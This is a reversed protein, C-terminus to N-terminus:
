SHPFGEELISHQPCVAVCKRCLVCRNHDIYALHHELTIADYACAKVCKGCGICGVDCAKRTVAGKDRSVCSVYIRRSKRGKNRLEIIARPCAKVCAGCATCKDEVVEPLGTAPNIHIADFACAVVCDGCGLCGYVCGTEGGYLSAAIACNAVGDYTNTRRCHAFSGSCRVVAVRPDVVTGVERGLAAAVRDMLERGGVPCWKGDLTDARVCADAFGQCGPYGCGGCNAQPLLEAVQAIRPDEYVAFRRSVVYLVMAIVLAIIGLSVVALLILNM